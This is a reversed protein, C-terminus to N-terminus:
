SDHASEITGDAVTLGDRGALGCAVAFVATCCTRNMRIGRDHQFHSRSCMRAWEVSRRRPADPRQERLRGVRLIRAPAPLSPLRHSSANGPQELGLFRDDGSLQLLDESRHVVADLARLDGGPEGV